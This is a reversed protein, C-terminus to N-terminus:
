GPYIGELKEELYAVLPESSIAEGTIRQVLTAPASRRGHAHVNERLWGLLPAFEGRGIQDDIDPLAGRITRWMQAAYLNGLTYTPFYGIAGMSWHIDQLCGRRDDPVDLGLDSRMRENWVGPIDAVSMEGRVIAREIDFRLMIHLNYTAEDSEVRIFWPKCTNVARHAQAADIGAVSPGLIQKAKPTLWEWFPRSRGVQNEWMRSQSEHVGLSAFSGLPEGFHEAPLGQEYMAHGAEHLSTAVADAFNDKSYRTTIRHDGVGVTESFPHTSVDIRGADFDYGVGACVARVLGEQASVPAAFARPTEDQAGPRSGIRGILESLRERLPTFISEIAVSNAHPEFDELLADYLEGGEPAGYCEAKRRALEYQREWYPRLAEFDSAERAKKWAELAHSSCESMEAVLSEPLKTAREYLRRAEAVNASAAEDARVAEDEECEDLLEGIRADTSRQHALTAIASLQEARFAAGKPPMKTEQDWSLLSGVSGLVSAGRLRARLEAYASSETAAPSTAATTM